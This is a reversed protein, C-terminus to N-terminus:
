TKTTDINVKRGPPRKLGPTRMKETWKIWAMALCIVYTEYIFLVVYCLLVM